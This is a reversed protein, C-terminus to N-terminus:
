IKGIGFGFSFMGSYEYRGWLTYSPGEGCCLALAVCSYKCLYQLSSSNNSVQYKSM